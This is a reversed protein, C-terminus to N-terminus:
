SLYWLFLFCVGNHYTHCVSKYIESSRSGERRQGRMGGEVTRGLGRKGLYVDERKIEEGGGRYLRRGSLLSPASVENLAVNLDM